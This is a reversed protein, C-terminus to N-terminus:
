SCQQGINIDKSTSVLLILARISDLDAQDIVKSVLLKAEELSNTALEEPSTSDALPLSLAGLAMISYMSCSWSGSQIQDLDSYTAEVRTYFEETSYLWYLCHIEQFYRSACSLFAERSPLLPPQPLISAARSQVNAVPLSIKLFGPIMEKEEAPKNINFIWSKVATNFSIGADAGVYGATSNTYWRVM